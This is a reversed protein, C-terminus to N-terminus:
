EGVAELRLSFIERLEQDGLETIWGEGSGVINEALEKKGEIMTDIREELTGACVFKHVQVDRTQGIRFARDTAQNEVSPNWWRDFHFVHNARTLNLGTGGAKLSLVFISPGDAEDQFRRVMRDRAGQPVGGHLFLVESGFADQLHQQILTGMRAFQTFVLAREGLELVEELMERLRTLKGSRTSLESGDGLYHAPHNCVQKLKGLTALIEGRRRMGEAKAIREEAEALVATYLAAQEQTLTCFVKMENKDPLEALIAKDTKLRRLVFPGTLRKLRELASAGAGTQIPVYYNRKFESWTGLFGPNLFEMISWLDGVNNEVPTGTLAIRAETKLLRASKAQKTDPNKINQAEDLVVGAWKVERLFDIDRHLLAYSTVVMDYRPAGERFSPGRRRDVGHHVLVQLQPTFRKAEHNWNEVVSTPCVLLWPRQEGNEKARLVLALTQITKGLGMDDALCAGLGWERLFHLWSLGRLQYPRLEGQFGQPTEVLECAEPGRLRELFLGVEGRADVGAVRLGKQLRNAGLAMQLLDRLTTKGEADKTWVEAAARLEEANVEVWQGRVRVLPAKLRALAHLEALTIEQEGLAVRWEFKVVDALTLKGGGETSPGEVRARVSLHTRTGEATWWAPLFVAYGAEELAPAAQTLFQHAGAADLAAGCPEAEDLSQAVAECVGAAHGLASLLFARPGLSGSGVVGRRDLDRWATDLPVILSSDATSQLVYRLHWPAMAFAEDSLDLGEALEPEELRFGLRFPSTEFVSAPERWVKVREALEELQAAESGDMHGLPAALAALWRDHITPEEAKPKPTRAGRGGRRPSGGPPVVLAALRVLHDVMEALFLELAAHPPTEPAQEADRSALARAAPPMSRALEQFLRRDDGRLLPEWLAVWSSGQHVLSPLFHQRAVLAGSFRLAKSWFLFDAGLGVGRAQPRPDNGAYLLEMSEEISLDLALVTWPAIRTEGEEDVAAILPSSPVPMGARTATWLSLRRLRREGPKCGPALAELCRALAPYPATFPSFPPGDDDGPATPAAASRPASAGAGRERPPPPTEAWVHLRGSYLGAHLITAL